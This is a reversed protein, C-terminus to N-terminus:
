LVSSLIDICLYRSVDMCDYVYERIVSLCEVVAEPIPAYRSTMLAPTQDIFIHLFIMFRQRFERDAASEEKPEDESLDSM